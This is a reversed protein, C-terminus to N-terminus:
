RFIEGNEAFIATRLIFAGDVAANYQQAFVNLLMQPNLTNTNGSALRLSLVLDKGNENVSYEYIWPKVNVLKEGAKGKKTMIIEDQALFAEMQTKKDSLGFLKVTYQSSSIVNAKMQVDCVDCVAVGQPLVANLREKVGELTIEDVLRMDVSECDSEIGLSLPLSFTMYLHPHFGETYWMTIGTRRVARQFLRTMDLHSIYKARDRKSFFIRINRM